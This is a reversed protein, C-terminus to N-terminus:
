HIICISSYKSYSQIFNKIIFIGLPVVHLLREKKEKKKAQIKYNSCFNLTVLMRNVYSFAYIEMNKVTCKISNCKESVVDMIESAISPKKSCHVLSPNTVYFNELIEQILYNKKKPFINIM